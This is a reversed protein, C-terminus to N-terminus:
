AKPVEPREIRPWRSVRIRVRRLWRAIPLLALTLAALAAGTMAIGAIFALVFGVVQLGVHAGRVLSEM